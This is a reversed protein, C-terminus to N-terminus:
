LKKYKYKYEKDLKSSSFPAFFLKLQPDKIQGFSTQFMQMREKTGIWPQLKWNKYTAPPFSLLFIYKHFFSIAAKSKFLSRKNQDSFSARNLLVTTLIQGLASDPSLLAECSYWHTLPTKEASERWNKLSQYLGLGTKIGPSLSFRSFLITM